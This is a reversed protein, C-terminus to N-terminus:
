LGLGRKADSESILMGKEKEARYKQLSIYDGESLISDSDILDDNRGNDRM